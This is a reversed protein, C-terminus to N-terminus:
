QKEAADDIMKKVVELTADKAMEDIEGTTEVSNFSRRITATEFLDVIEQSYSPALNKRGRFRYDKTGTGDEVSKM